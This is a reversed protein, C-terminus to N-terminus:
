KSKFMRILNYSIPLKVAKIKQSTSGIALIDLKEKDAKNGKTKKILIDEKEIKFNKDDTIGSKIDDKLEKVNKIHKARFIVEEGTKQSQGAYAPIFLLFILVLALTTSVINKKNGKM